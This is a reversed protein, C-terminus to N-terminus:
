VKGNWSMTQRCSAPLFEFPIKRSKGSYTGCDWRINGTGDARFGRLIVAKKKGLWPHVRESPWVEIYFVDRSPNRFRVMRVYKSPNKLKKLLPNKKIKPFPNTEAVHEAVEIKVTAAAVVAETIKARTSYNQYSPVALSLTIGIIAIIIMLEILSFGGQLM